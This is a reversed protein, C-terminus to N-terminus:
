VTLNGFKQCKRVFSKYIVLTLTMFKGSQLDLFCSQTLWVLHEKAQQDSYASRGRLYGRRDVTFMYTAQFQGTSRELRCLYIHYHLLPLVFPLHFLALLMMTATLTCFMVTGWIRKAEKAIPSDEPNGLAQVLLFTGYGVCLFCLANVLVLISFFLKYNADAICQNLFPCHHDFGSTCKNCMSCHKRYPRDYKCECGSYKCSTVLRRESEEVSFDQEL